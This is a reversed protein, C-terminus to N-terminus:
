KTLIKICISSALTNGNIIEPVLINMIELAIGWFISVNLINSLSLETTSISKIILLSIIIRFMSKMYEIIKDLM